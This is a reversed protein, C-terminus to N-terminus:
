LYVIYLIQSASYVGGSVDNKKPLVSELTYTNLGQQPRFAAGYRLNRGNLLIKVEGIGPVILDKITVFQLYSAAPCDLTLTVSTKHGALKSQPVLGHDLIINQTNTVCTPHVTSGSELRQCAFFKNAATPGINLGLVCIKGNEMNTRVNNITRSSGNFREMGQLNEDYCGIPISGEPFNMQIASEIVSDIIVFASCTFHFAYPPLSDKWGIGSPLSMPIATVSMRGLSSPSTTVSITTCHAVLPLGALLILFVGYIRNIM